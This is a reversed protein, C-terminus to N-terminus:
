WRLFASLILSLSLERFEINWNYKLLCIFNSSNYCHIQKLSFGDCNRWQVANRTNKKRFRLNFGFLEFCLDYLLEDVIWHRNVWRDVAWQCKSHINKSRDIGVTNAEGHWCIESADICVDTQGKSQFEVFGLLPLNTPRNKQHLDCHWSAIMPLKLRNHHNCIWLLLCVLM